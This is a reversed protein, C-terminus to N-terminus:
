SQGGEFLMEFVLLTKLLESPFQLSLGQSRIGQYYYDLINFNCESIIDLM